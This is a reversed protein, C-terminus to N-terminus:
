AASAPRRALAASKVAQTLEAPLDRYDRSKALETVEHWVFQRWGPVQALRTYHALTEAYHASFNFPATSSPAASPTTSPTPM